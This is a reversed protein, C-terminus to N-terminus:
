AAEGMKPIGLQKILGVHETQAHYRYPDLWHSREQHKKKYPDLSGNADVEVACLDKDLEICEDSINVDMFKFILNTLFRSNLHSPNTKPVHFQQSTVTFHSKLIQYGSINGSTFASRSQGTADGNFIFLTNQFDAKILNSLMELDYGIKHYEKLVNIGGPNQIALCTNQVNFDWTLYVPLDPSYLDSFKKGFQESRKYDRAFLKSPDELGWEGLVYIRYLNPDINILNELTEKYQEDLFANDRYTSSILFTTLPNFQTDFRKCLWHNISIPNFMLTIQPNFLNIGRLRLDIQNFEEESIETAEEIVIRTIGAISKLKEVDDVGSLIFRSGNAFDFSMETKNIFYDVGKRFGEDILIQQILSFISNRLTNHVKRLWLVKEKREISKLIEIQTVGYSKGSGAGGKVVNYRKKSHYLPHYTKNIRV